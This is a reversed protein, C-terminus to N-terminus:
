VELSIWDRFSTRRIKALCGSRFRDRFATAIFIGQYRKLDKLFYRSRGESEKSGSALSLIKEIEEDLIEQSAQLGPDGMEAEELSLCRSLITVKYGMRALHYSCSLGAPGSGIVAIEEKADAEPSFLVQRAQPGL